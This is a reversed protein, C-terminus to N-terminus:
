GVPIRRYRGGLANDPFGLFDRSTSTERAEVIARELDGDVLGHLDSWLLASVGEKGALDRYLTLLHVELDTYASIVLVVGLASPITAPVTDDGCERPITHGILLRVLLGGDLDEEGPDSTELQVVGDPEGTPENCGV